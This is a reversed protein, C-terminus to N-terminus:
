PRFRYRYSNPIKLILHLALLAKLLRSAENKDIEIARMVDKNRFETDTGFVELIRKAKEVTPIRLHARQLEQVFNSLYMEKPLSPLEGVMGAPGERAEGIPINYNLNWLTVRFESDSSYFQPALEKRFCEARAYEEKIKHFGSGRREMYNM